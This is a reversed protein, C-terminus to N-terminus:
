IFLIALAAGACLGLTQYSRLKVDHNETRLNLIRKCEQKVAELGRLQGELDYQGLQRGFMHLLSNMNKPMNSVKIKAAYVCHRVDPLIQNELEQALCQFYKKLTGTAEVASRRCLQALPLQHYQLEWIMFDLIMCFERLMRLEKKYTMATLLGFGGCAVIVMIGGIIKFNM